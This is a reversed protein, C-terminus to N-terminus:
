GEYTATMFAGEVGGISVALKVPYAVQQRILACARLALKECSPLTQIASHISQMLQDIELQDIIFGNEDLAGEDCELEVTYHFRRLGRKGCQLRDDLVGRVVFEGRRTLKLRM